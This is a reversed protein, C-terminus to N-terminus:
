MRNLDFFSGFIGNISLPGSSWYNYGLLAIITLYFIHIAWQKM